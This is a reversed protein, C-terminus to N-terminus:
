EQLEFVILCDIAREEVKVFTFGWLHFTLDRYCSIVVSVKLLFTVETINAKEHHIM